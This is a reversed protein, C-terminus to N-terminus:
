ILRERNGNFHTDRLHYVAQRGSPLNPVRRLPELLDVYAIGAADLLAATRRQPAWRGESGAPLTPAVREWLADDVQFQDPLLVVLLPTPAVARGMARLAADLHRYMDACVERRAASLLQHARSREVEEFAPPSFTAVEREPDRLWPFAELCQDGTLLRDTVMGFVKGVGDRTGREQQEARLRLLRRPVQLLLVNEPVFWSRLTPHPDFRFSEMPDNGLFLQVLVLDPSLGQAEREWLLLYEAPGLAPFGLNHVDVGPLQAELRTTFHLGHPVVGASFSDGISVVLSRQPERGTVEVDYHGATNCPFGYRLTGAPFRRLALEREADGSPQALLPTPWLHQLLRLGLEAGLAGLALGFLPVGIRHTWRPLRRLRPEVAVAMALLGGLVAASAQLKAITFPEVRWLFGLWAAVGVISVFVLLRPGPGPGGRTWRHLVLLLGSLATLACPAALILLGRGVRVPEVARLWFWLLDVALWVSAALAAGVTAFAFHRSAPM